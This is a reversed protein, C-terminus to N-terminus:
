FGLSVKIVYTNVFPLSVCLVAYHVIYTIALCDMQVHEESDPPTFFATLYILSTAPPLAWNLSCVFQLMKDGDFWGIHNLRTCWAVGIIPMIVLRVLTLCVPVQWLRLPMDKIHLRAITAGLMLLGLPVCAAGIYSAFDMLFSLPPLNDPANPIDAQNTTVFLNQVWPIMAIVISVILSLSVPRLCSELFGKLFEVASGTVSKKGNGTCSVSSKKLSLDTLGGVAAEHEGHKLSDYQSYEHVVDNLTQSPLQRLNYNRISSESLRRQTTRKRSGTSNTRNRFMNYFGVHPDASAISYLSHPLSDLPSLQRSDQDLSDEGSDDNDNQSASYTEKEKVSEKKSSRKSLSKSTENKLTGSKPSANKDRPGMSTEELSECDSVFKMDGEILKYGGCTFQVFAQCALFIIVYAVGRNGEQESFVSGTALTQIYAIPLDSINPLLGVSICGGRWNKPCPLFFAVLGAFVAGLSFVFFATLVIIGIQKIDSNEINSVVKNFVLCPLIVTIIMDSINRCTDVTLVNRKALYYGVGMILYIKFIPKVATYIVSGLSVM